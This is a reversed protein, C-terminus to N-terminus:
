IGVEAIEFRHQRQQNKQHRATWGYVSIIHTYLKHIHTRAGSYVHIGHRRRAFCKLHTYIICLNWEIPAKMWLFSPITTKCKGVLLTIIRVCDVCVWTYRIGTHAVSNTYTHCVCTCMYGCALQFRFIWAVNSIAAANNSKQQQWRKRAIIKKKMWGFGSPIYIQLLKCYNSKSADGFITSFGVVASSPTFQRFHYCGISGHNADILTPELVM